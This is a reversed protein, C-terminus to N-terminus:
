NEVKKRIFVDMEFVNRRQIKNNVQAVQKILM